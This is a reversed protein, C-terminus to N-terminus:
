KVTRWAKTSWGTYVKEGDVVRWARAKYYYTKGKELDKNNKYTTKTTTFYPTNGYGSYRNTSRFVDFGDFDLLAFDGDTVSWSIKIAKKGNLKTLKSKSKIETKALQTEAAEVLKAHREAATEVHTYGGHYTPTPSPDPASTITFDQSIPAYDNTVTITITYTGERLTKVYNGKLIVNSDSTVTYNDKSLTKDDIDVIVAAQDKYKGNTIFEINEAYGAQKSIPDNTFQYPFFKGNFNANPMAITGEVKISTLTGNTMVFTYNSECKYNGDDKQLNKDLDVQKEFCIVNLFSNKYTRAGNENVWGSQPTIPFDDPLIDAITVPKAQIKDAYANWGKSINTDSSTYAEVSEAPVYIAIGSIPDVGECFAFEGLTPPTTALCTVTALQSCGNFAREGISTMSAPITINTISKCGQFAYSAISTTSAPITINTLSTCEKFAASGISQISAPIIINELKNCSDFASEGISTVSERITINKLSTCEFFAYNGINTVDEGIEVSTISTGSADWPQEQKQGYDKMAGTGEIHLTYTEPESATKELWAIINADTPTGIKWPNIPKIKDKYDTWSARYASVSDNPVYISTLSACGEFIGNELAPPTTALCTVTALNTCGDFACGEIESVSAPITVKTLSTCDKFGKSKVTTIPVFVFSKDPLLVNGPIVIEGSISTNAKEVKVETGSTVTFKFTMGAPIDTANFGNADTYFEVNDAWAVGTAMPMMVLVMILSLLISLFKRM